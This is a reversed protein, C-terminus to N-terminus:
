LYDMVALRGALIRRLNYGLIGVVEDPDTGRAASEQVCVEWISTNSTELIRAILPWHSTRFPVPTGTPSVAVALGAAGQPYSRTWSPEVNLTLHALLAPVLQQPGAFVIGQEILDEPDSWGAQGEHALWGAVDGQHPTLHMVELLPAEYTDGLDEWGDHGIVAYDSVKGNVERPQIGEYRGIINFWPSGPRRHLGERKRRAVSDTFSAAAGPKAVGATPLSPEAAPLAEAPTTPDPMGTELPTARDPVIGSGASM